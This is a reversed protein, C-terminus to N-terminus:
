VVTLDSLIQFFLIIHVGPLKLLALQSLHMWRHADIYLNTVTCFWFFFSLVLVERIKAGFLLLLNLNCDM